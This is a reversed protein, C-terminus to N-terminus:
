QSRRPILKDIINKLFSPQPRSKEADSKEVIYPLGGWDPLFEDGLNKRFVVSKELDLVLEFGSQAVLLNKLERISHLQVDDLIILGGKKLMANLYCFDVFVTPWGHGGDLLVLDAMTSEELLKPLRYESREIYTVLPLTNISNKACYSTIRGILDQDPVITILKKPKAFLFTITSNGAGTEIITANEFSAALSHFQRLFYQDFGGTNWTKGGDWSHLLPIDALYEEFTM